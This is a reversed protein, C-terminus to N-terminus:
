EILEIFLKEGDEFEYNMKMFGYKGNVWFIAKSLKIDNSTEEIESEDSFTSSMSLKKVRTEAIIEYYELTEGNFDLNKKGKITYKSNCEKMSYQGYKFIVITSKYLENEKTTFKITPHPSVETQYYQNERIPHIYIKKDNLTLTSTDARIWGKQTVSKSISSLATKYQDSSTYEWIFWVLDKNKKTKNIAEEIHMKVIEKSITDGQNDIKIAKYKYEKNPVYVENKILADRLEELNTSDQAQILQSIIISCLM